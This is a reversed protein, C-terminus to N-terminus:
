LPLEAAETTTTTNSDVPLTATAGNPQTTRTEAYRQGAPMQPDYTESVLKILADRVESLIWVDSKWEILEGTTQHNYPKDLKHSKPEVFFGHKGHKLLMDRHVCFDTRLEFTAKVAKNTWDVNTMREITMNVM